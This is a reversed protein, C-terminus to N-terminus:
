LGLKGSNTEEDKEPAVLPVDSSSLLLLALYNSVLNWCHQHLLLIEMGDKSALRFIPSFTMMLTSFM